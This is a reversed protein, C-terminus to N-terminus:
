QKYIEIADIDTYALCLRIYAAGSNTGADPAQSCDLSGELYDSSWVIKQGNLGPGAYAGIYEKNSNYLNVYGVYANTNQSKDGAITITDSNSVPIFGTVLQGDAYAVPVHSSNFRARLVVDSDNKDFLNVPAPASKYDLSFERDYGAGYNDVYCTLSDLDVTVLSFSTDTRSNETKPYTTDENWASYNANNKYHNNDYFNSNPITFRRIKDAMYDVRYCHTHGHCNGIIKANHNTFTYSGYTGGNTYPILIDAAIGSVMDLPAHSLLLIKWDAADTKSNVDILTECLWNKQEQSVSLLTGQTSTSMTDSTNLYIVRLRVNEIDYYGYNNLGDNAGANYRGFYQYAGSNQLRSVTGGSDTTACQEHNGVCRINPVGSFGDKLFMNMEQIDAKLWDTQYQATTHSVGAWTMDGLSAVFDLPIRDAIYKVAQGCHMNSVRTYDHSAKTADNHSDSVAIFRITRGLGKHAFAKALVSESEDIVYQPIVGGSVLADVESKTYANTIGYGALTTSKDAKSNTEDDVYDELDDKVLNVFNRVAGVTPYFTDSDGTQSQNNIITKKNSTNEKGSVDQHQTLFGSDNKLQSTKTPIASSDAKGAIATSIMTAVRKSDPIFDWAGWESATFKRSIIYGDKTMAYQAMQGAVNPTCIVIMKTTTVVGSVVRVIYVTDPDTCNDVATDSTDTVEVFKEAGSIPHEDFYDSVAEAVQEDTPAGTHDLREKLNTYSGRAAAIERVVEAYSGLSDDKIQGHEAIDPSIRVLVPIQSVIINGSGDVIKPQIELIGSRLNKVKETDIGVIVTSGDVDCEAEQEILVGDSVYTVTAACGQELEIHEGDANFTIDIYRTNKDCVHAIFDVTYHNPRNIDISLKRHPIVM